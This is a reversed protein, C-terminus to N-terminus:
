IIFKLLVLYSWESAEGLKLPSTTVDRALTACFDFDLSERTNLVWWIFTGRGKAGPVVKPEHWM